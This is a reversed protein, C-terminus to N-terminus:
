RSRFAGHERLFVLLPDDPDGPTRFGLGCSPCEFADPVETECAPCPGTFPEDQAPDDQGLAERIARAASRLQTRSVYLGYGNRAGRPGVDTNVTRHEFVLGAAEFAAQVRLFEEYVLLTPVEVWPSESSM